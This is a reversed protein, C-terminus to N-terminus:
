RKPGFASVTSGGYLRRVVRLAQKLTNVESTPRGDPHRYYTQAYRWYALVLARVDIGDRDADNGAAVSPRLGGGSALRESILRHYREWSEPTNHRGLYIPKGGFEVYARGTSRHHRYKPPRGNLKPM